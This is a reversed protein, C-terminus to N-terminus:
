GVISPTWSSAVNFSSSVGSFREDDVKQGAMDIRSMWGYPHGKDNKTQFFPKLLKLENVLVGVIHPQTPNGALDAEAAATPDANTARMSAAMGESFEKLLHKHTAIFSATAGITQTMENIGSPGLCLARSPVGDTGYLAINYGYGAIGTERGSLYLGTNASTGSTLIDAPNYAGYKTLYAVFPSNNSNNAFGIIKGKLQSPKTIGSAIPVMICFESQQIYGFFSQITQGDQSDGVIVAQPNVVGIQYLGQTLYTTNTTTSASSPDSIVLNIGYKAFIGKQQGYFAIASTAGFQGPIVLSLTTLTKHPTASANAPQVGAFAVTGVTCGVLMARRMRHGFKLHDLRM